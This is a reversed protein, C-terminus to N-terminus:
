RVDGKVDPATVVNEGPILQQNRAHAKSIIDRAEQISDTVTMLQLDDKSLKHEDLMRTRMWDMLDTWWERGFLIVPFHKLKGTQILTLAEFLEDLTGFGGPFVAFAEAYKAFMTKRAFFYDFSISITLYPNPAQEFPLEINLGVSMGGAEFAGKNAAEMIGPGGGTIVAFDNLAM